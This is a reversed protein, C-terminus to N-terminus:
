WGEPGWAMIGSVGRASGRLRPDITGASSPAEETGAKRLPGQESVEGLLGTPPALSMRGPKPRSKWWKWGLDGGIGIAAVAVILAATKVKHAWAWRGVAGGGAVQWRVLTVL